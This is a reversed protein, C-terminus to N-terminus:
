IEAKGNNVYLMTFPWPEVDGTKNDKVQAISFAYKGLENIDPIVAGIDWSLVTGHEMPARMSREMIVPMDIAMQGGNKLFQGLSQLGALDKNHTWVEAIPAFNQNQYNSQM